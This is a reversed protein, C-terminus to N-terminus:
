IRELRVFGSMRRFEERRAAPLFRGFLRYLFMMKMERHVRRAEDSASRFETERWGFPEYFATGSAPAFQFPARGERVADGWYRNLYTLLRPNALDILWSRVSPVAHIAKALTAVQEETLYILLGETMVTTPAPDRALDAFLRERQDPQTLDVPRAEYRCNAAADRLTDDKYQLIGPLDVDIWQLSPPVPLRWPRADLGAALNVVRTVGGAIDAMLLEDFAVTRVVMAWAMSRGRPLTQVIREGELGALRRAFPDHFLADPRDSELARYYAVWRATDSIHAIPV